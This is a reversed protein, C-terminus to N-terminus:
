VCVYNNISILLEFIVTKEIYIGSKKIAKGEKKEFEFKEMQTCEM